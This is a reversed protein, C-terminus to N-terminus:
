ADRPTPKLKISSFGMNYISDITGVRGGAAVAAMAAGAVAAGMNPPLLEGGGCATSIGDM